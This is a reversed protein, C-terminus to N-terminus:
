EFDNKRGSVKWSYSVLRRSRHRLNLIRSKAYKMLKAIKRISKLEAYDRIRPTKRTLFFIIFFIFLYISVLMIKSKKVLGSSKKFGLENQENISLLSKQDEFYKTRKSERLSKYIRYFEKYNTSNNVNSLYDYETELKHDINIIEFAIESDTLDHM